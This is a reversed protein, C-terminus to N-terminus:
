KQVCLQYWYAVSAIDLTPMAAHGREISARLSKEFYIPDEIFYRYGHTRGVQGMHENGRALGYYPHQCNGKTSWATNFASWREGDIFVEIAGEGHWETSPNDIFCHIGALKGQGEIAAFLYNGNDSTTGGRNWWAHFRGANEPISAHVEYDVYYFFQSIPCDSANEIVIKAGNAYPMPFYCNLANGEAPAASLPTTMCNYKEGWGQGFFDGIPAAVSPHESDDWYMKIAANRRIMLDECSMTIWIHKIVGAGKLHAIDYSSHADIAICDMSGGSKEYSSMRKSRIGRNLLYLRNVEISM